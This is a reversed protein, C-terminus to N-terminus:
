LQQAPGQYIAELQGGSVPVQATFCQFFRARATMVPRVIM